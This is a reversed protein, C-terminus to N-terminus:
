TQKWRKHMWLWQDPYEIIFQELVQNYQRTNAAIEEAEDDKSIWTLRPLFELVHIGDQRRYSRSPLVPVGTFKAIMAPSKFTGAPKGLFDVLIGDKAKLSAHQDLVFVVANNTELADCVKYLSNHKPIVNLGSQYYRRFLIREVTKNVLTKRVFYFRNRFEPFNLIGAIPAFEWNGFHGTILIAGKVKYDILDWLYEQGLVIARNKIAKETMFRLALNERLSRAIHTYFGLALRQIEQESLQNDFVQRMNQLVVKKRFPIYHYFFKGALSPKIAAIYSKLHEIQTSNFTM